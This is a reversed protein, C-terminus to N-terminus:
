LVLSSDIADWLLDAPAATARDFDNDPSKDRKCVIVPNGEHISEKEMVTVVCGQPRSDHLTFAIQTYSNGPYIEFRKYIELQGFIGTPELRSDSKQDYVAQYLEYRRLGVGVVFQYLLQELTGRIVTSKMDFVHDHIENRSGQHPLVIHPPNWIHLRINAGSHGEKKEWVEEVPELDLQIFGNPHVRPQRGAKKAEEVMTRAQPLTWKGQRVPTTTM